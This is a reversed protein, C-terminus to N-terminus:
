PVVGIVWCTGHGCQIDCSDETPCDPQFAGIVLIPLIAGIIASVVYKVRNPM